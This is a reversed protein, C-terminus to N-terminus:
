SSNAQLGRRDVAGPYDNADVLTLTAFTGCFMQSRIHELFKHRAPNRLAM